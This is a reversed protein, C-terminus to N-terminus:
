LVIKGKYEPKLLDTYRTIEGERVLGTNYIIYLQKFAAMGFFQKDRDVFPLKGEKWSRPDKVEPLVLLPEVPGLLGEPKMLNIATTAGMGFFDYLYLGARQEAKIKAAMEPGRGAPSHELNIGYKDKFGKSLAAIARPAWATTMMTVVGEEKAKAVTRQWQAEGDDSAAVSATPKLGPSATPTPAPTCAVALLVSLLLWSLRM